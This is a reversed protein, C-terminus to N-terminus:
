CAHSCGTATGATRFPEQGVYEHERVKLQKWARQLVSRLFAKKKESLGKPLDEQLFGEDGAPTVGDLRYNELFFQVATDLPPFREAPLGTYEGLAGWYLCGLIDERTATRRHQPRYRLWQDVFTSRYVQMQSSPTWPEDKLAQLVADPLIMRPCPADACATDERCPACPMEAQLVVHGSGYPGTEYVYAPGFFLALTPVGLWCALHLTGTDGSLLGDCQGLVDALDKLDTKGVLNEVGRDCLRRHIRDALDKERGDGMLLVKAGTDKRVDQIVKEFGEPQWTRKSCRTAMQIGLTSQHDLPKWERTCITEPPSRRAAHFRFVDVLPFRNWRRDTQVIHSILEVWSGADNGDESAGFGELLSDKFFSNLVAVPLRGDNLNIVRDFSVGRMCSLDNELTEWLGVWAEGKTFGRLGKEIDLPYVCEVWPTLLELFGKLRKDVLVSVAHGEAYRLDHLLYLSQCLDGMRALQSVLVHGMEQNRDNEM